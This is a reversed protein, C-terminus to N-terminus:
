GGSESRKSTPPMRGLISYFHTHETDKSLSFLYDVIQKSLRQKAGQYTCPVYLAVLNM